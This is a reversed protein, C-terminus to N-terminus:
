QYNLRALLDGLINHLMSQQMQDVNERWRGVRSKHDGRFWKKQKRAHYSNLTSDQIRSCFERVAPNSELGLYSLLEQATAWSDTVLDEYRVQHHADSPLDTLAIEMVEKWVLACRVLGAHENFLSQWSPPKLHRWEDGGVGPMLSCAVDRGDRVIHIIKAEPFVARLFPIRLTNRPCKEVIIGASGQQKKFWSRIKDRVEPTAHAAVLRHSNNVGTGAMDWVDHAEFVYKIDPHSALLEGLISTGSRACGIVLAVKLEDNNSM